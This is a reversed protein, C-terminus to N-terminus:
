CEAQLERLFAKKLNLVSLANSFAETFTPSCGVLLVDPTIEPSTVNRGLQELQAIVGATSDISSLILQLSHRELPLQRVLESPSHEQKIQLEEDRPRKLPTRLSDLLPKRKLSVSCHCDEFFLRLRKSSKVLKRSKARLEIRLLECSLEEATIDKDMKALSLKCQSLKEKFSNLTALRTFIGLEAYQKKTNATQISVIIANTEDELGRLTSANKAQQGDLELLKQELPTM